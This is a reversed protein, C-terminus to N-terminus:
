ARERNRTAGRLGVRRRGARQRVRQRGDARADHGHAPLRAVGKTIVM